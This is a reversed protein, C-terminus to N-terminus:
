RVSKRGQTRIADVVQAVVRELDQTADVVTHAPVVPALELYQRRRQELWEPSAEPKRAYLVEGPADLCIVLGPKPYFHLLMWGHLRAFLGRRPGRGAIDSHYYDALFHRDFVVINGNRCHWWAIGQRLWEEASWLALRAGDKATRLLVTEVGRSAELSRSATLDPRRGRRKKYTLLALTTPLMLSSADLNVGMYISKIPMGLATTGRLLQSVTSKGAGDAGVLAVTFGRRRLTDLDHSGVGNPSLFPHTM